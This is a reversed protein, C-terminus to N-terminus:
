QDVSVRHILANRNEVALKEFINECHKEVTRPSLNLQQAISGNSEYELIKDLIESERDTLLNRIRDPKEDPILQSQLFFARQLIVELESLQSASLTRCESREPRVGPTGSCLRRSEIFSGSEQNWTLAVGRGDQELVYEGIKVGFSQEVLTGVTTLFDPEGLRDMLESKLITFRDGEIDM